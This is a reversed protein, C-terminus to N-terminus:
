AQAAAPAPTLRRAAFVSLLVSIVQCALVLAAIGIAGWARFVPYAASVFVISATVTAGTLWRGRGLLVLLQNLFASLPGLVIGGALVRLLWTALPDRQGSIIWTIPGALTVVGVAAVGTLLALGGGLRWTLRSLREPADRHVSTLVPYTAQTLPQSLGVLATVVREGIAYAGVVAPAAWLGLIPTAAVYLVSSARAGLVPLGGRVAQRVDALHIRRPRIWAGRLLDGWLGASAVVTGLVQLLIVWWYDDPTRVVVFILLASGLRGAITWGALTRTRELGLLIWDLYFAQAVLYCFALVFLLSHATGFGSWRALALILLGAPVCMGLRVAVITTLCRGLAVADHSLLAAQRVGWLSFGFETLILLYGEVSQIFAVLGYYELGLVRALYPTVLVPLVYNAAQAVGLAQVNRVLRARTEM